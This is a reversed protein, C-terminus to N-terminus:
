DAGASRSEARAQGPALREISAAFLPTERRNHDGDDHRRAAATDEFRINHQAIFDMFEVTPHAIASNTYECAKDNIKKVSVIFAQWRLFGGASCDWFTRLTVAPCGDRELKM